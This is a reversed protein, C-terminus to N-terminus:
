LADLAHRFTYKGIRRGQQMGRNCATRFHFGVMVRSDANELEAETFSHWDCRIASRGRGRSRAGPAFSWGRPARSCLSRTKGTKDRPCAPTRTRGAAML